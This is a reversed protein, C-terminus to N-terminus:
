NKFYSFLNKEHASFAIKIEQREWINILCKWCLLVCCLIRIYNRLIKEITLTFFVRNSLSDLLMLLTFNLKWVRLLSSSVKSAVSLCYTSHPEVSYKPKKRKKLLISKHPARIGIQFIIKEQLDFQM